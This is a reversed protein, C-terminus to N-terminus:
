IGSRAFEIFAQSMLKVYCWDTRIRGLLQVLGDVAAGCGWISM